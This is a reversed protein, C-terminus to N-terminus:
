RSEPIRITGLGSFQREPYPPDAPRVQATWALGTEACYADLAAAVPWEPGGAARLEGYGVIFKRSIGTDHCLVLGGPRVRPAYKRLEALTHGYLHSTDIFLIDLEGPLWAAAQESMDDAALFSWLGNDLWEETAPGYDVSWVHGGSAAAGALFASTSEGTRTGLEAIAPRWYSRAADRLLPLQELADSWPGYLRKAYGDELERLRRLAAADEARWATYPLHHFANGGSGGARWAGGGELYTQDPPCGTLDPRDQHM